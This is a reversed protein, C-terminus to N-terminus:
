ASLAKDYVAETKKAMIKATFNKVEHHGVFALKHALARNNVLELIKAALEKSNAPEVLEGNKHPHIIEPIGGVATAIIPLEAAMAELLVLGFAEKISPLVFLDSSKLIKPINDINGLLLVNNELDLKKIQKLLAKKQPGDGAIALKVKPEKATVEKMSEILYKLGKRPHLTAISLIIFDDTAASFFSNRIRAREQSAFHGTERDFAELDIGNHVTTIKEELEPYLKMILEKNSNSVAIVQNVKKLSSKKLSKKLGNLAFPDHETAIIKAGSNKAAMFAYRCSGPNWLHLHLLDPKEYRLIKRLQFLHRPDHKHGVNLRIVRMGTKSFNDCWEDLQRFNSCILTVQYRSDDLNSALLYMHREAGGYIPTDTYFFVKKM